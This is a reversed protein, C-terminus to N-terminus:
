GPWGVIERRRAMESCVHEWGVAQLEVPRHHIAMEGAADVAPGSGIKADATM